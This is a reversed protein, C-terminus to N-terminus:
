AEAASVSVALPTAGPDPRLRLDTRFVYGDATREEMIRVLERAFRVFTRTMEEEPVRVIGDDYLVILDIDSSYNLERAGFKGMALIIVGSDRCPDDPHALDLRGPRAMIRLLHATALDLCTEALDSLAGTVRMLPWAGTIDALATLLASRRKAIRLGTMLRSTDREAGYEQRLTELLDAHTRDYGDRLLRGVFAQERVLLQALYPSNAFVGALLPGTAPDDILAATAPDPAAERWRERGLALLQM